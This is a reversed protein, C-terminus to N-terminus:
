GRQPFGTERDWLVLLSGERVSIVARCGFTNIGAWQLEPLAALLANKMKESRIGERSVGFRIGCGEAAELIRNDPVSANGEVTFFFVRTPLYLVTFLLVVLGALVVPRKRLAAAQWWLGSKGRLQLSNGHKKCYAAVRGLNPRAISFVATIPDPQEMHYIPIGQGTLAELTKQMVASTVEVQVMGTLSQWLNM